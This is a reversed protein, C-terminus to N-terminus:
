LAKAPKAPRNKHTYYHSFDSHCVSLLLSSLRVKHLTPLPQHIRKIVRIQMKMSITPVIPITECINLGNPLNGTNGRATAAFTALISMERTNLSGPPDKARGAANEAYLNGQIYRSMSIPTLLIPAQRDRPPMWRQLKINLRRERNNKNPDRPSAQLNSPTQKAIVDGPSNDRLTM